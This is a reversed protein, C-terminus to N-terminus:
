RHTRCSPVGSQGRGHHATPQNLSDYAPATSPSSTCVVAPFHIVWGGVRQGFPWVRPGHPARRGDLGGRGRRRACLTPGAADTTVHDQAIKGVLAHSVFISVFIHDILENRGRYKRSFRQAGQAAANVAQEDALPM